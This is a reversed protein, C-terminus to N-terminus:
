DESPECKKVALSYTEGSVLEIWVTGCNSDIEKVDDASSPLDIASTLLNWFKNSEM